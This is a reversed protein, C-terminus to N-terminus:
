GGGRESKRLYLGHRQKNSLFVPNKRIVMKKQIKIEAIIKWIKLLIQLQKNYLKEM